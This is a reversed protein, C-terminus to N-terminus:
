ALVYLCSENESCTIKLKKGTDTILHRLIQSRHLSNIFFISTSVAVQTFLASTSSKLLLDSSQDVLRLCLDSLHKMPVSTWLLYLIVCTLISWPLILIYGRGWNAVLGGIAYTISRGRKLVQISSVNSIPFSSGMRCCNPSYAPMLVAKEMWAVDETEKLGHTQICTGHKQILM